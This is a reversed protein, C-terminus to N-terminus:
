AAPVVTVCAAEVSAVAERAQSLEVQLVLM